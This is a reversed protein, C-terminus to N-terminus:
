RAAGGLLVGAVSRVRADDDGALLRLPERIAELGDRERRAALITLVDLKYAVPAGALAVEPARDLLLDRASWAVDQNPDGIFLELRASAVKAPLMGLAGRVAELTARRVEPAPDRALEYLQSAAFGGLNAAVYPAALARVETRKDTAAQLVLSETEGLRHKSAAALGVRIAAVAPSTSRMAALVAEGFGLPQPGIANTTTVAVLVTDGNHVVLALAGQASPCVITVEGTVGGFNAITAQVSTALPRAPQAIAGTLLLLGEDSARLTAGDLEWLLAHHVPDCAFHAAPVLAPPAVVAVLAVVCGSIM